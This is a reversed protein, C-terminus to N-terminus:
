DNKMGGCSRKGMFMKIQKRTKDHNLFAAKMALM